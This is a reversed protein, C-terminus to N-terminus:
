INNGSWYKAYHVFQEKNSLPQNTRCCNFCINFYGDETIASKPFCIICKKKNCILCIKKKNHLKRHIKSCERCYYQLKDISSNCYNFETQKLRKKCMTCIKLKM